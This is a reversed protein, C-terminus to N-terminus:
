RCLGKLGSGGSDRERYCRARQSTDLLRLWLLLFSVGTGAEDLWPGM